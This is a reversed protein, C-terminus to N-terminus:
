ARRRRAMNGILGLGVVLLLWTGPEPVAASPSYNLGSASSLRAGEPLVFGFSGTHSFDALGGQSAAASLTSTIKFPTNYRFTFETEFANDVSAKRNGSVSKSENVLSQSNDAVTCNYYYCSVVPNFDVLFSFSATGGPTKGAVSGDVSATLVATAESYRYSYGYYYSYYYEMTSNGSIVFYDTWSAVANASSSGANGTKIAAAYSKVQGGEASAFSNYGYGKRQRDIDLRRGTSNSDSESANGSALGTNYSMSGSVSTSATASQYGQLQANAPLQAVAASAATSVFAIAIAGIGSGIQKSM